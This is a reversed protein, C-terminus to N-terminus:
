QRKLLKGLRLVATELSKEPIACNLRMCNQYKESTSFLFGPAISVGADLAHQTLERTNYQQPLEVWLVFGGQPYTIHTDLPLQDEILEMTRSVSSSVRERMQKLHRDFSGNELLRAAILQPLTATGTNLVFKEAGLALNTKPGLLWGIRLGPSLTKSLSSCLFNNGKKDWYKAPLPREGRHPLEAYIDDEVLPVEYDALLKVLKKKHTDSTCCGMPNSFNPVVVCAKIPWKNLAKNLSDLCIGNQPHTPVELAKLGLSELILLLGYFCPSELAVIDGPSTLSRLALWLAEQAGNTITIEEPKVTCGIRAFRKALQQVLNSEGPPLSYQNSIVRHERAVSAAAKEIAVQPLMDAHPIAAGLPIINPQNAANLMQIIIDRRKVPVPRKHPASQEPLDLKVRRRNCVYFGSRDRAELYGEDELTRYAAVATAMSVSRQQSVQRLGPMREGTRYIGQDIAAALEQSLNRYLTTM